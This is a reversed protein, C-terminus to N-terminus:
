EGDCESVVQELVLATFYNHCDKALVVVLVCVVVVM